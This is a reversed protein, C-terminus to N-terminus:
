QISIMGGMLDEILWGADTQSIVAFVIVVAILAVLVKEWTPMIEWIADLKVESSGNQKAAFNYAGVRILSFIGAALFLSAVISSTPGLYGIAGPGALLDLLTAALPGVLWAIPLAVAVGVFFGAGNLLANLVNRRPM